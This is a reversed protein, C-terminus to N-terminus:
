KKRWYNKLRRARRELVCFLYGITYFVVAIFLGLAVALNYSIVYSIRM